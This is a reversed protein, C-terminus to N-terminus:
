KPARRRGGFLSSLLDCFCVWGWGVALCPSLLLQICCLVSWSLVADSCEKNASSTKDMESYLLFGIVTWSILWLVFCCVCNLCVFRVFVADNFAYLCEKEDEDRMDQIFICVLLLGVVLHTICGGLIFDNVDFFVFGSGDMMTANCDNKTNIALAAIDGGFVGALIVLGLLVFLCKERAKRNERDREQIWRAKISNVRKVHEKRSTRDGDYEETQPMDQENIVNDDAM